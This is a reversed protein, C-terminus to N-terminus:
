FMWGIGAEIEMYKFNITNVGASITFGKICGMLGIDGSFGSFSGPSYKIWQGDTTGWQVQRIGYGVGAYLYLPCGLRVLTGADAIIETTQRKGSYFPQVDYYNVWRGLDENYFVEMENRVIGGEKAEYQTKQLAKFQFNSRAKVYWGWQGVQGVFIGAGWQPALSYAGEALIFTKMAPRATVMFEVDNFIFEGGYDKLVDWVIRKGKGARVRKGVDGSISRMPFRDVSAEYVPHYGTGSVSVSANESLDYTIVICKGEQSVVVNQVLQPFVLMTVPLLLLTLLLKKNMNVIYLFRVYIGSNSM